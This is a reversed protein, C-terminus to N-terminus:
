SFAIEEELNEDSLIIYLFIFGSIFVLTSAVLILADYKEKEKSKDKEFFSEIADEEFYAYVFILVIFVILNMQRYTEKSSQNNTKFYDIEFSNAKLSLFILFLYLFWIKNETQIQNIRKTLDQM